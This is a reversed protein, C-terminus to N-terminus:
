DTAPIVRQERALELVRNRIKEFAKEEIQRIRERSVSYRVSLQELTMPM